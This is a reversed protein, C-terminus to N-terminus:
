VLVDNKLEKGNPLVFTGEKYLIININLKEMIKRNVETLCNNPLVLFLKPSNKQKNSYHHSYCFLQGIAKYLQESFSESTKVEFISKLNKGELIAVDVNNNGKISFNTDKFKEKLERFLSNRIEGHLYEYSVKHNMKKKEIIGEFEDNEWWSINTDTANPIISKKDKYLKKLKLVKKTFNYIDYLFEPSGVQTIPIVEVEEGDDFVQILNNKFYKKSVELPIMGKYANVKGRHCILVKESNTDKVICGATNKNYTFPFNLEVDPTISKMDSPNINVLHVYRNHWEEKPIGVSIIGYKKESYYYNVEAKDGGPFSFNRLSSKGFTKSIEERFVNIYKKIEKEKKILVLM